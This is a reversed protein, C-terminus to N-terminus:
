HVLPSTHLPVRPLPLAMAPHQVVSAWHLSASAQVVSVHTAPRQALWGRSQETALLHTAPNQSAAVPAQMVAGTLQSSAFTQVSSKQLGSLPQTDCGVDWGGWAFSVEQASPASLSQSPRTSAASGSQASGGSGPGSPARGGSGPSSM